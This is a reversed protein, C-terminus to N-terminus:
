EILEDARLRVIDPVQLGLARAAKMNLVTQFKTPQQVPLDRPLEGKLIRDVYSAALRYPESPDPGFSILGGEAVFRRVPYVAPLRHAAALTIIADRLIRTAGGGLVIMGDNPGRAFSTMAQNIESIERLRIPTLEVGLSPAVAQIAGLGGVGASPDRVVAVRTVQPAIQKLLELSKATVGFEYNMFGTANGGPRALSAVLGNGVPDGANAFVIPLTQTASRLAEAAFTGGAVLVDPALAVLEAAYKRLRDIDGLGWRYEIRVNRGDTWGREQLGQVFATGRAQWEPDDATLSTVLVYIRRMRGGQQARAALPWLIAAAAGGLLTIFERRKIM